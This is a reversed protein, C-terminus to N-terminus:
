QQHKKVIADFEEETILEAGYSERILRHCGPCEQITWTSYKEETSEGGGVSEIRGRLDVEAKQHMQILCKPCIM